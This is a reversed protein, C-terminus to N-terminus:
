RIVPTFPLPFHKLNLIKFLGWFVRFFNLILPNYMYVYKNFLTIIKFLILKLKDVLIISYLALLVNLSLFLM